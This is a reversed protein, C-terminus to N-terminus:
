QAVGGALGLLQQQRWAPAATNFLQTDPVLLCLYTAAAMRQRQISEWDLDM